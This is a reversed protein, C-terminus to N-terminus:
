SSKFNCRLHKCKQSNLCLCNNSVSFDHNDEEIQPTNELHVLWTLTIDTTVHLILCKENIPINEEVFNKKVNPM